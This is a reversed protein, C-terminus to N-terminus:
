DLPDISEIRRCTIDRSRDWWLLIKDQDVVIVTATQHGATPM